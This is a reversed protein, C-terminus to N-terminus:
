RLSRALVGLLPLIYAAACASVAPGDPATDRVELPTTIGQKPIFILGIVVIIFGILILNKLM